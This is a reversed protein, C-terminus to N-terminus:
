DLSWNQLLKEKLIFKFFFYIFIWIVGPRNAALQLSIEGLKRLLFLCPLICLGDANLEQPLVKIIM